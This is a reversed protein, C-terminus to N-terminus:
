YGTRRLVVGVTRLLLAMDGRCSLDAYYTADLRARDAFEGENRASVQWLGTLGPRLAFYPEPDGYLVLQEPLMPRPGVISMEGKLVNWLQPLEDLSSARLVAGLRTVRPDHRLKQTTRWEEALVPDNELYHGLLQDADRVMSRLKVIWFIRGDKGLRAQRYFPQGGEIWLALACLLIIPLTVPLAALLFLLDLVPKGIYRYIRRRLVIKQRDSIPTKSPRDSEFVTSGNEGSPSLRLPADDRRLDVKSGIIPTPGIKFDVNKM